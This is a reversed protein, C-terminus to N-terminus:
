RRAGSPRRSRGTGARALRCLRAVLVEVILDGPWERAGKLDLEAAALLGIAEALGASGYRRASSLAKKAPFTSRGKAIGLAAAATAESTIGPGDVRLMNTLHRQLISTIVLPHREGAGLMRHLLVLAVDTQGGDIADTLDWPAVSGAEGLYPEIDDVGLRAGEGHAAVLVELIGGLRSVDEGLHAELRSEAAADLRLPSAQLRDRLWGRADRGTVTTATVHGHAKVAALLKPAIRGKGAGDGRAARGAGLVLATTPLPAELYALLPAVEETNWRGVERVVVVRRDGLFPPTRCADAVAALDIEDGRFDEVVLSRDADGVLEDVVTRIGEAVLTPDDGDVLWVARGEAGANV